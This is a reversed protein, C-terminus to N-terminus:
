SNWGNQEDRRRRIDENKRRMNEFFALSEELTPISRVGDWNTGNMIERGLTGGHDPYSPLQGEIFSIEKATPRDSGGKLIRQILANIRMADQMRGDAIASSLQSRLRNQVDYSVQGSQFDFGARAWAYGGDTIDAFVDVEEVGLARYMDYLAETYNSSFGGGRNRMEPIKMYDNHVKVVGNQIRYTRTTNGVARGNADAIVATFGFGNARIDTLQYQGLMRGNFHADLIRQLARADRDRLIQKFQEPTVDTEYTGPTYTIPTEKGGRRPTINTTNSGTNTNTEPRPSQTGQQSSAFRNPQRGNNVVGGGRIFEMVRADSWEQAVTNNANLRQWGGNVRKIRKFLGTGASYTSLVTGEPFERLESLSSVMTSVESTDAPTLSTFTNAQSDNLRHVIQESTFKRSTGELEWQGNGLRVFTRPASGDSLQMSVRTAIPADNIYFSDSVVEGEPLLEWAGPASLNDGVAEQQARSLLGLSALDESLYGTDTFNGSTPYWNGDERKEYLVGGLTVQTGVPAGTFWDPNNIQTGAPVDVWGASVDPTIETLPSPVSPGGASSQQGGPPIVSPARDGIFLQGSTIRQRLLSMDANGTMRGGEFRKWVGDTDKKYVWSSSTSFISTGAPAEDLWGADLIQTGIMSEPVPGATSPAETAPAEPTVPARPATEADESAPQSAVINAADALTGFEQSADANNNREAEVSAVDALMAADEARNPQRDPLARLEQIIDAIEASSFTGEVVDGSVLGNSYARILGDVPFGAPIDKSGLLELVENLQAPTAQTGAEGAPTYNHVQFYVGANADWALQKVTYTGDANRVAIDYNYLGNNYQSDGLIPAMVPQGDENTVAIYDGVRVDSGDSQRSTQNVAGVPKEPIVTGDPLVLQSNENRTVEVREVTVPPAPIHTYEPVSVSAPNAVSTGYDARPDEYGDRYGIRESGNTGDATQILRNMRSTTWSTDGNDWRVEVYDSYRYRGLSDVWGLRKRVTGRRGSVHEVTDGADLPTRQDFSVWTGYRDLNNQNTMHAEYVDAVEYMFEPTINRGYKVSIRGAMIGMWRENFRYKSIANLISGMVADEARRAENTSPPDIGLLVRINAMTQRNNQIEKAHVWQNTDPDMVDRKKRRRTADADFWNVPGKGNFFSAHFKAIERRYNNFTAYPSQSMHGVRASWSEGTTLNIRRVYTYFYEDATRTVVVEFRYQIGTEEESHEHTETVVEDDGRREGNPFLEAMKDLINFTVGARELARMAELDGGSVHMWADNAITEDIAIEEDQESGFQFTHANFDYTPDEDHPNGDDIEILVEPDADRNIKRIMSATTKGKAKPNNMEYWKGNERREFRQVDGNKDIFYVERFEQSGQNLVDRWDTRPQASAMADEVTLGSAEAVQERTQQNREVNGDVTDMDHRNDVLRQRVEQVSIDVNSTGQSEPMGFNQLSVSITDDGNGTARVYAMIVDSVPSTSIWTNLVEQASPQGTTGEEERAVDSTGSRRAVLTDLNSTGGYVSDLVGAIYVEADMGDSNYLALAVTSLPYTNGDITVEQKGDVVAERIATRLQGTSYQDLSDALRLDEATPNALDFQYDAVTPIETVTESPVESIGPTSDIVPIDANVSDVVQNVADSRSSVRAVDSANGSDMASRVDSTLDPADDINPRANDRLEVARRLVSMEGEHPDGYVGGLFEAM